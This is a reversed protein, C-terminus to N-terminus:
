SLDLGPVEMTFTVYGDYGADLKSMYFSSFVSEIRRVVISSLHLENYPIQQRYILM